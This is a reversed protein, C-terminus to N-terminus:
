RLVYNDQLHEEVTKEMIQQVKMKFIIITAVAKEEQSYGTMM